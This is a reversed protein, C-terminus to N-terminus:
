MSVGFSLSDSEMFEGIMRYLVVYYVYGFVIVCCLCLM